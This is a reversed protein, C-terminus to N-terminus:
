QHVTQPWRGHSVSNLPIEDEFTEPPRMQVKLERPLEYLGLDSRQALEVDREEAEEPATPIHDPWPAVHGLPCQMIWREGQHCLTEFGQRRFGLLGVEIAESSEREAGRRTMASVVLVENPLRRARGPEGIEVPALLSSTDTLLQEIMQPVRAGTPLAEADRQRVHGVVIGEHEACQAGRVDLPDGAANNEHERLKRIENSPSSWPVSCLALGNREGILEASLQCSQTLM